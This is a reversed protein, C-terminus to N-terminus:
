SIDGLIINAIESPRLTDTNIVRFDSFEKNNIIKYVEDFREVNTDKNNKSDREKVRELLTEYDARLLFKYLKSNTKTALKELESVRNETLGCDIIVTDGSLILAEGKELIREFTENSTEARNREQNTLNKRETDFALIIANKIKQILIEGVSSKGAGKAGDLIIIM